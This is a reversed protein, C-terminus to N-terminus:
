FKMYYILIFDFGCAIGDQQCNSFQLYSYTLSNNVKIKASM